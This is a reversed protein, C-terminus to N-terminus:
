LKGIRRVSASAAVQGDSAFAEVNNEIEDPDYLYNVMLGYSQRFGKSSNDALWTIQHGVDDAWGQHNIPTAVAMETAPKQVANLHARFDTHQAAHAAPQGAGPLTDAALLADPLNKGDTEGDTAPGAAIAATPLDADDGPRRANRGLDSLDQGADDIQAEARGSAREIVQLAAPLLLGSSLLDSAIRAPDATLADLLDIDADDDAADSGDDLLSALLAARPDEPTKRLSDQLLNAFATAADEASADAGIGRAEGVPGSSALPTASSPLSLTVDSM